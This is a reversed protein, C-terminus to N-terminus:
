CTSGWLDTCHLASGFGKLEIHEGPVFSFLSTKYITNSVIGLVPTSKIHYHVASLCFPAIPCILSQVSLNPSLAQRCMVFSIELNWLKASWVAARQTSPKTHTSCGNTQVNLTLVRYTSYLVWQPIEESFLAFVVVVVLWVTCVVYLTWLKM